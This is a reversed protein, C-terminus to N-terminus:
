ARSTSAPVGRPATKTVPGVESRRYKITRPSLPHINGDKDKGRRLDRRNATLGHKVVLDFWVLKAADPYTSLDSPQM